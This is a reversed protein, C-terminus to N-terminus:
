DLSGERFNCSKTLRIKIESQTSNFYTECKFQIIHRLAAATPQSHSFDGRCQISSSIEFWQWSPAPFQLAKVIKQIFDSLILNRQNGDWDWLAQHNWPNTLLNRLVLNKLKMMVKSKRPLTMWSRSKMKMLMKPIMIKLSTISSKRIKRSDSIM